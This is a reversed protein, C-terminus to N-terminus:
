DSDSAEGSEAVNKLDWGACFFKEGKGTLIGFRQEPNDRFDEWMRNLQRSDEASIVNAKGKSLTIELIPDRPNLTFPTDSM